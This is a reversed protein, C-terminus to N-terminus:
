GHIDFFLKLLPDAFFGIRSKCLAYIVMRRFGILSGYDLRRFWDDNRLERWRANRERWPLRTDKYYGKLIFSAALLMYRNYLNYKYRKDVVCFKKNIEDHAKELERIMPMECIIGHDRSLSGQTHIYLYGNFSIHKASTIHSYYRYSFLSDEYGCGEFRLHYKKIIDTRFMQRWVQGICSDDILPWKDPFENVSNITVSEGHYGHPEDKARVFEERSCQNFDGIVVDVGGMEKNLIDLHDPYYYDDSDSFTLLEGHANDLGFNRAASVGGNPIHFSKVRSDKKAFDDCIKSTGDTSGDDILLLELDKYTQNLISNVTIALYKESNYIPVIISIM